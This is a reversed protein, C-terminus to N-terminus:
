QCHIKNEILNQPLLKSSDLFKPYNRNGNIQTTLYKKIVSNELILSNSNKSYNGLHRNQVM